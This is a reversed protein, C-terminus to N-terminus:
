DLRSAKALKHSMIVFDRFIVSFGLCFHDWGADIFTLSAGSMSSGDSVSFGEEM